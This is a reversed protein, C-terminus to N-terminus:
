PTVLTGHVAPLPMWHTPAPVRKEKDVMMWGEEEAEDAFREGTLPDFLASFRVTRWVALGSFMERGNWIRRYRIVTGDKPATEIPQWDAM